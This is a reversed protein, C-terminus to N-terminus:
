RRSCRSETLKIHIVTKKFAISRKLCKLSKFKVHYYKFNSKFISETCKKKVKRNLKIMFPSSIHNKNNLNLCRFM